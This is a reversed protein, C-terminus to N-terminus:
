KKRGDVVKITAKKINKELLISVLRIKASGFNDTIVHTTGEVSFFWEAKGRPLKGKEAKYSSLDFRFGYM